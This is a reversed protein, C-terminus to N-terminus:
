RVPPLLFERLLAVGWAVGFGNVDAAVAGLGGDNRYASLDVHVWPTEGVFKALFRTAFIADAESGMLCQKVDAIKSELAEDYDPEATLVNMREGTAVSARAIAATLKEDSAFAGSKRNGLAYIMAGTLTAFDIMASPKGRAALTLTDALVMRGEADTNIIEITTGNLATVVDGPHYADPGIHNQSIALWADIAIPLKLATAAQLMGLVAASGAMDEHMGHMYKASKLSHGGTDMCIGKGVIAIPVKASAKGTPRYALHVIAADRHSSGRAVACFAGAGMKELAAYGYEALKWGNAKALKAVDARYRKPTLDNAPRLTFARALLNGEAIALMEHCQKEDAEGVVDIATLASAKSKQAPKGLSYQSNVAAVYVAHKALARARGADTAHVIITIRSPSEAALLDFAKRMAAHQEFLSAEGNIEAWVILRGDVDASVAKELAGRHKAPAKKADSRRAIVGQLHTHSYLKDIAVGHSFLVLVHKADTSSAAAAPKSIRLQITM